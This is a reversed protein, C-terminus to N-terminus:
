RLNESGKPKGWDYETEVVREIETIDKGYFARLREELIRHRWPSAKKIQICDDQRTLEVRSNEKVGMEELLSKPIQIGQGNGWKRITARMDGGKKSVTPRPMSMSRALPVPHSSLLKYGYGFDDPTPTEDPM